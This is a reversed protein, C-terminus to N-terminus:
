RTARFTQVAKKVDDVYKLVAESGAKYVTGETKLFSVELGGGIPLDMVSLTRTRTDIGTSNAWLKMFNGWEESAAAQRGAQFINNFRLPAFRGFLGILTAYKQAGGLLKLFAGWKGAIAINFDYDGFEFGQMQELSKFGTAVALVVGGSAGGGLGVGKAKMVAYGAHRTALNVFFAAAGEVRSYVAMGGVKLGLGIWLMSPDIPIPVTKFIVSEIVAHSVGDGHFTGRGYGDALFGYVWDLSMMKYGSDHFLVLRKGLNYGAPRGPLEYVTWEYYGWASSIYKSFPKVQRWSGPYKRRNAELPAPDFDLIAAHSGDSILLRFPGEPM